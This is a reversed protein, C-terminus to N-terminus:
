ADKGKGRMICWKLYELQTLAITVGRKSRKKVEEIIDEKTLLRGLIGIHITEPMAMIRAEIVKWEDETIDAPKM